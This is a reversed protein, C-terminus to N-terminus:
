GYQCAFSDTTRFFMLHNRLCCFFDVYHRLDDVTKMVFQFKFTSMKPYPFSPSAPSFRGSPSILPEPNSFWAQCLIPGVVRVVAGDKIGWLSLRRILRLMLRRKLYTRSRHSNSWFQRYNNGDFTVWWLMYWSAIWWIQKIKEFPCSRSSVFVKFVSISLRLTWNCSCLSDWTIYRPM